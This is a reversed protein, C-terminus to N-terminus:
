EQEAAETLSKAVNDAVGRKGLTDTGLGLQLERLHMGVGPGGLDLVSTYCTTNGPTHYAIESNCSYAPRIIFQDEHHKRVMQSVQDGHACYWNRVCARAPSSGPTFFALQYLAKLNM